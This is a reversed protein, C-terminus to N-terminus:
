RALLSAIVAEPNRRRAGQLPRTLAGPDRQQTDTRILEDLLNLFAIPRVTM